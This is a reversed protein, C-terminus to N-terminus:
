HESFKKEIERMKEQGRQWDYSGEDEIISASPSDAQDKAVSFGIIVGAVVLLVAALTIGIIKFKHNFKVTVAMGVRCGEPTPIAGIKGNNYLVISKPEGVQVIVGKM